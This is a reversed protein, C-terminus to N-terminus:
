LRAGSAIRVPLHRALWGALQEAVPESSDRVERVVQWAPSDAAVQLEALRTSLPQLFAEQDSETLVQSVLEHATATRHREMRVLQQGEAKFIAGAVFARRLEGADNFHYVPDEGFYLSLAGTKRFGVVLLESHTAQRFEARDVLATADAILDEKRHEQKAM